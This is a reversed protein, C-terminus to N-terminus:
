YVLSIAAALTAVLAAISVSNVSSSAGSKKPAPAPAHGIEGHTPNIPFTGDDSDSSTPTPAPSPSPAFGRHMSRGLTPSPSPSEHNYHPALLLKPTHFCSDIPLNLNGCVSSLTKAKTANLVVGFKGSNHFLECACEAAYDYDGEMAIKLGDCCGDDPKAIDLGDSIFSLCGSLDNYVVDSCDLETPPESRAVHSLQAVVTFAVLVLVFTSSLKM